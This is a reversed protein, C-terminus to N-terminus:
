SRNLFNKSLIEKVEQPLEYLAVTEGHIKKTEIIAAYVLSETSITFSLIMHKGENWDFSIKGDIEPTIEPLIIQEPLADVLMNAIAAVDAKIPLAENGDWDSVNYNEVLEAIQSRLFNRWGLFVTKENSQNIKSVFSAILKSDPGYARNTEKYPNLICVTDRPRIDEATNDQSM